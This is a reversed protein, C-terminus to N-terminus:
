KGKRLHEPLVTGGATQGARIEVRPGIRAGKEVVAGPGIRVGDGLVADPRVEAGEGLECAEGIICDTLGAGRGASVGDFLVSREASAGKVSCGEGLVCERVDSGGTEASEAILSEGGLFHRTAELYDEPKGVDRWFADAVSGCIRKGEKLMRPFLDKSFDYFGDPMMELVEPELVYIGDNALDSFTESKKPKEKFRVIEDGDMEAIGFHSVDDVKILSITAAGGMRGHEKYLGRLDIESINDGQIVLFTDDLHRLANKVSGATGLPEEEHVLRFDVGWDSGDGFHDEIATEEINTTAIIERFGQNALREVIHEIVPRNLFPVMPKPRTYTLPRLRTGEGGALIVAKM